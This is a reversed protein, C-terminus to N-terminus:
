GFPIVIRAIVGQARETFGLANLGSQKILAVRTAITPCATAGGSKSVM